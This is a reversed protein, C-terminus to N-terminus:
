VAFKEAERGHQLLGRVLGVRDSEFLRPADLDVAVIDGNQMWRLGCAPISM